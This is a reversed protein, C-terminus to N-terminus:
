RVRIVQCARIILVILKHDIYYMYIVNLTLITLLTQEFEARM